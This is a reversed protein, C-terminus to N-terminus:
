RRSSMTAPPPSPAPSRTGCKTPGIIAPCRSKWRSSPSQPQGRLRRRPPRCGSAAAGAAGPAGPSRPLDIGSCAYRLMPTEGTAPKTRAALRHARRIALPPWVRGTRDHEQRAGTGGITSVFTRKVWHNIAPAYWTLQVVQFKKTPDNTNQVQLSTEIKFTDFTGARTTVSEQAISRRRARASGASGATSNLDTSKFSWTKGVALPLVFAPATM